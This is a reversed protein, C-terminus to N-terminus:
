DLMNSLYELGEDQPIWYYEDLYPNDLACSVWCWLYKEPQESSEFLVMIAVNDSNKKSGMYGICSDVYTVNPFQMRNESYVLDYVEPYELKISEFSVFTKPQIVITKKAM